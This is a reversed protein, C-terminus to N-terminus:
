CSMDVSYHISLVFFVLLARWTDMRDAVSRAANGRAASEIAMTAIYGDRDRLSSLDVKTLDCNFIEGLVEHYKGKIPGRRNIVNVTSDEISVDDDDYSFYRDRLEEITGGHNKAM